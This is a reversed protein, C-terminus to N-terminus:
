KVSNFHGEEVGKEVQGFGSHKVLHALGAQSRGQILFIIEWGLEFEIELAIELSFVLRDHLIDELIDSLLKIGM